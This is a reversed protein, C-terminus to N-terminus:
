VRRPLDRPTREAFFARAPTLWRSTYRAQVERVQKCHRDVVAAAIGTPIDGDGCAAVRLLARAEAIFDHGPAPPPTTAVPSPEPPTPPPPTPPAPAATIEPAPPAPRDASCATVLLAAALLLTRRM